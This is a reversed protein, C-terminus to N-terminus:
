RTIRKKGVINHLVNGSGVINHLVNELSYQTICKVIRSYLMKYGRQQGTKEGNVIKTKM